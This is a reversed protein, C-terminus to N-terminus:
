LHRLQLTHSGQLREHDAHATLPGRKIAGAYHPRFLVTKLPTVHRKNSTWFSPNSTSVDRAPANGQAALFYGLWLAFLFLGLNQETRPGGLCSRGRLSNSAPKLNVPASEKTEASGEELAGGCSGFARTGRAIVPRECSPNCRPCDEV